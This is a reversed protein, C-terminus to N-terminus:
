NACAKSLAQSGTKTPALAIITGIFSLRILSDTTERQSKQERVMIGVCFYCSISSPVTDNRIVGVLICPHFAATSEKRHKAGCM